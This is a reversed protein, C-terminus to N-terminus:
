FFSTERCLLVGKLLKERIDNTYEYNTGFSSSLLCLQELSDIFRLENHKDYVLIHTPIKKQEQQYLAFAFGFLSHIYRTYSGSGRGRVFTKEEPVFYLQQEFSLESFTSLPKPLNLIRKYEKKKRPERIRKEDFKKKWFGRYSARYEDMLIELAKPYYSELIKNINQEEFDSRKKSNKEDRISDLFEMRKNNVEGGFLRFVKEDLESEKSVEEIHQYEHDDWHSDDLFDQFIIISFPSSGLKKLQECLAVHNHEEYSFRGIEFDEASKFLESLSKPLKKFNREDYRRITKDYAKDYFLQIKM